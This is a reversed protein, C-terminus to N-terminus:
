AVYQWQRLSRPPPLCVGGGGEGGLGGGFEWGGWQRVGVVEVESIIMGAVVAIAASVRMKRKVPKKEEEDLRRLTNKVTFAFAADPDGFARRFDRKKM